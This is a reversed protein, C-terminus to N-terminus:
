NIKKRRDLIQLTKAINKYAQSLNNEFERLRQGIKSARDKNNYSRNNDGLGLYYRRAIIAMARDTELEELAVQIDAFKAHRTVQRDVFQELGMPRHQDQFSGRYLMFKALMSESPWGVERQAITDIWIDVLDNIREKDIAM